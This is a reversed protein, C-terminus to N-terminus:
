IHRRLFSPIDHNGQTVAAIEISDPMVRYLIMYKGVPWFLLDYEILDKRTHGIRPNRALLAFADYLKDTWRDAATPSDAAIYFWIEELDIQANDSLLYRSM